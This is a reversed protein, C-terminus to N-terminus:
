KRMRLSKMTRVSEGKAEASIYPSPEALVFEDRNIRHVFSGLDSEGVSM